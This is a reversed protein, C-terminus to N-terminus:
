LAIDIVDGCVLAVLLSEGGCRCHLYPTLTRRKLTGTNEISIAINFAPISVPQGSLTQPDLALNLSRLDTKCEELSITLTLIQPPYVTGLNTDFPM